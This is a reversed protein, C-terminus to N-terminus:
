TGEKAAEKSEEAEKPVYEHGWPKSGPPQGYVPGHIASHPGKGCVACKPKCRCQGNRIRTTCLDGDIAGSM